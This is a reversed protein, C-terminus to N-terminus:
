PLDAAVQGDPDIGDKHLKILQGARLSRAFLTETHLYHM